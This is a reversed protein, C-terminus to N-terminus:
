KKPPTDKPAPTEKSDKKKPTPKLKCYPKQKGRKPVIWQCEAKAKCAAEDLGKCASATKSKAKAAPAKKMTDQASADFGSGLLLGVAAAAVLGKLPGSRTKMFM